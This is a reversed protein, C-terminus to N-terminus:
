FKSEIEVLRYIDNKDGFFLDHINEIQQVQQQKQEQWINIYKAVTPDAIQEANLFKSKIHDVATKVKGDLMKDALILCYQGRKKKSTSKESEQSVPM